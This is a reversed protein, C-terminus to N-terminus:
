LFDSDGCLFFWKDRVDDATLGPSYVGLPLRLPDKEVIPETSAILPADIETLWGYLKNCNLERARHRAFNVLYQLNEKQGVMDVLLLGEETRRTILLGLLQDSGTLHVLHYDYQLSPNEHFRQKLYAFDRIGVARGTFETAMRDWLEDVLQGHAADAFDFETAELSESLQPRWDIELMSGVDDYLELRLALRMARANPFGYSLLYPLGEGVYQGLFATVSQYFPGKRTLIGRYSEAVMSDGCQMAVLPKGDFLVRRETGGFFAVLEDGKLVVVGLGRGGDYKWRWHAESMESKFVALFLDRIQERHQPGADEVRWSPSDQQTM